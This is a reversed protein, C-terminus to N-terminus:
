RTSDDTREGKKTCDQAHEGLITVAEALSMADTAFQYTVGCLGCQFWASNASEEKLILRYPWNAGM